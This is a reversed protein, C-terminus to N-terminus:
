TMVFCSEGLQKRKQADLHVFSSLVLQVLLWALFVKTLRRGRTNRKAVVTASTAMSNLLTISQTHLDTEIAELISVLQGFTRVLLGSQVLQHMRDSSMELKSKSFRLC